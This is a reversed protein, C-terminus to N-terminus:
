WFHKVLNWVASCLMVRQKKTFCSRRAGMVHLSLTPRRARVMRFRWWQSQPFRQNGAKSVLSSSLSENKTACLYSLVPLKTVFFLKHRTVSIKFKPSSRLASTSSFPASSCSVWSAATSLTRSLSSSLSQTSQSHNYVSFLPSNGSCFSSPFM